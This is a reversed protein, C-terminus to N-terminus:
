VACTRAANHLSFFKSCTMAEMTGTRRQPRMVSPEGSTLPGIPSIPDLDPLYIPVLPPRHLVPKKDTSSLAFAPIPPVPPPPQSITPSPPPSRYPIAFSLSRRHAQRSKPSTQLQLSRPTSPPSALCQNFRPARRKTSLQEFSRVSQLKKEVTLFDSQRPVAPASQMSLLPRRTRPPNLAVIQPEPSPQRPPPSDPRTFM